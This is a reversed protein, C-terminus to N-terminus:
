SDTRLWINPEKPVAFEQMVLETDTSRQTCGVGGPGPTRDGIGSLAETDGVSVDDEVEVVLIVKEPIDERREWDDRDDVVIEDRACRLHKMGSKLM